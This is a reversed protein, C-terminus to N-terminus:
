TILNRRVSLGSPVGFGWLRPIPVQSCNQAIWEYTAAECRIKEDLKDLSRLGGVMHPFPCRFMFRQKRWNSVSIPICVNFDGYMWESQNAVVCQQHRQLSLHQSVLAKIESTRSQLYDLFERRLRPWELKVLMNDDEDEIEKWRSIFHDTLEVAATNRDVSDPSPDDRYTSHM